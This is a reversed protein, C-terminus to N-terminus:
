WRKDLTMAPGAIGWRPTAPRAMGHRCVLPSHHFAGDALAVLYARAGPVVLANPAAKPGCCFVIFGDAAVEILLQEVVPPLGAV